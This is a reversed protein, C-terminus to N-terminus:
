DTLDGFLEGNAYEITSQNQKVREQRLWEPQSTDLQDFWRPGTAVGINAKPHKKWWTKIVAPDTTADKFGHATLPVKKGPKCPFVPLGREAYRLAATLLLNTTM